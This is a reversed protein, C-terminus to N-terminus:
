QSNDYYHLDIRNSGNYNYKCSSIEEGDSYSITKVLHQKSNYVFLTSDCGQEDDYVISSIKGKLFSTGYLTVAKNTKTAETELKCNNNCSTLLFVTLLLITKVSYAKM